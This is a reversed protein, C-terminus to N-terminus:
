AIKIEKKENKKEINEKTATIEVNKDELVNIQEEADAISSNIGELTNNQLLCHCGM